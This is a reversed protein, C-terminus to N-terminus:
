LKKNRLYLRRIGWAILASIVIGSVIQSYTSLYLAVSNWNKGLLAGAYIMLWNWILASVGCLLTTRLVKLKSLGAFFSVVSRTGSLFRNVVIIWYGYQRFWEEVTHISDLSLFTLKRREIISEGFWDGVKYMTLFGTISGATTLILAITFDITGLGVLYGGFVVLVDSPSPPIINEIYSIAFLLCYILLPSLTELSHIFPELPPRSHKNNQTSKPSRM